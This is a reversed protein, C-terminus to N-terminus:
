YKPCTYQKEDKQLFGQGPRLVIALYLGGNQMSNKSFLNAWNHLGFLVPGAKFAGGVWVKGENTVQVPLYAGLSKTEWRPTLSFLTFDKAFLQKGNNNGTLNLSLNANVAFDNDLPRDVNIVLRTPNWIRFTGNLASMNNVITALSDNFDALKGINDFKLNLISDSIDSRPGSATRSQSGYKYVNQGIDLLSIGIKWEYDHYAEWRADYNTVAQTKILYELGLDVSGGLRSNTVLNKLNTGTSNDDQWKDFNSSYGYRASGANLLYYTLDGSVTRHVSGNKLQAFAGSIGRAAKLTIGANLRGVENDLITRSYTAFFELWSSTVMNANYTTNDQNIAFFQNMNQLSDNYNFAQSRAYGYGRLNAGFAIAQKRGLALRLNLLHVNFNFAAYRRFNGNNWNYSTTDPHSLLSLNHFTIANTTNKVQASFITLDWPYPADVISAPNNAAGIAGAYPSGEIAHYNQARGTTCWLLGLLLLLAVPRM